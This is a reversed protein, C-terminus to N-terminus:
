KTAGTGPRTVRWLFFLAGGSLLGFGILPAAAGPGFVVGARLQMMTQAIMMPLLLAAISLLPLGLPMGWRWRKHLALASALCGPAVIGLDLAFTTRVTYYSDPPFSGSRMEAGLLLAWVAGTVIGCAALFAPLARPCYPLGLRRLCLALGVMALPFLATYLPFAENFAVAGFALSLNLYLFWSQAAVLVVLRRLSLPGVLACLTAPAIMTLTLIDTGQAGGAVFPTDRRYLGHGHLGPAM